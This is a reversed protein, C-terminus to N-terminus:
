PVSIFTKVILDVCLEPSLMSTNLMMHYNAAEGWERGTYHRYHRKRNRDHDQIVHKAQAADSVAGREMLRTIRSEEDGYVFIHLVDSRRRLLFDAARGVIVCSEKEAISLILENQDEVLLDTPPIYMEGGSMQATLPAYDLASAPSYEGSHAIFDATYGSQRALLQLLEKDYYGIGLQEAVARGIQRGASGYQRSITIIRLPM